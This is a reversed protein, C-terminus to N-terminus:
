GTAPIQPPEAPAPQLAELEAQATSLEDTLASARDLDGERYAANIQDPLAQVRNHLNRQAFEAALVPIGAAEHDLLEQRAKEMAESSWQGPNNNHNNVAVSLAERLENLRLQYQLPGGDPESAALEEPSPPPPTKERQANDLADIEANLIRIEDPDRESVLRARRDHLQRNLEVVTVDPGLRAVVTQAHEAIQDATFKQKSPM